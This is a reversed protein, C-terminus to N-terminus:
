KRSFSAMIIREFIYGIFSEHWQLAKPWAQVIVFVLTIAVENSAEEGIGVLGCPLMRTVIDFCLIRVRSLWKQSRSRSQVGSHVIERATQMGKASEEFLSKCLKVYVKCLSTGQRKADRIAHQRKCGANQKGPTEWKRISYLFQQCCLLIREVLSACLESSLQDYWLYNSLVTSAYYQTKKVLNCAPELAQAITQLLQVFRNPLEEIQETRDAEEPDQMPVFADLIFRSLVNTPM